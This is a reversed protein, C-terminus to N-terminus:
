VAKRRKPRPQTQSLELPLRAEAKLEKLVVRSRVHTVGPLRFVTEHLFREYSKIDAALVKIVYDADGTTSYCSVIQSCAAIAREFRVVEDESHRTLNLEALVCLALGVKERDILAAYGRVVGGSELEKIRKWCPTTSLGVLKALKQVTQRSDRQLAQLLTLDYEDLMEMKTEKDLSFLM